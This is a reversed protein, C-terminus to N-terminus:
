LVTTSTSEQGVIITTKGVDKLDALQRVTRIGCKQEEMEEAAEKAEWDNIISQTVKWSTGPEIRLNKLGMRGTSGVSFFKQDIDTKLFCLWHTVDRGDDDAGVAEETATRM